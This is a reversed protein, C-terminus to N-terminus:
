FGRERDDDGRNLVERAEHANAVTVLVIGGLLAAGIVYALLHLGESVLWPMGLFAYLIVALTFLTKHEQLIITIRDLMSREVPGGEFSHGDIPEGDTSESTSDRSSVEEARPLPSEGEGRRSSSEGSPEVQGGSGGGWAAGLPGGNGDGGDGGDTRDAGLVDAGEDDSVSEAVDAREDDAVSEAVDAQEEEDASEPADDRNGDM